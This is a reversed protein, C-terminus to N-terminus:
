KRKIIKIVDGDRMIFLSVIYSVCGVVCLIGMIMIEHFVSDNHLNDWIMNKLGEVVVYMVISSGFIKIISKMMNKDFTIYDKSKRYLIYANVFGSISTGFAIGLIGFNWILSMNLIINVCISIIAAFVPTKSDKQAFLGSAFIKSVVYSPLGLAFIQLIKSTMEVSSRSFKGHGYLFDVLIYSMTILCVVSPITLRIAFLFSRNQINIIEEKKGRSFSESIEPLLITALSIGFLALPLQIFRDAFYIYSISGTPLFSGFLTDMFVNIQSVGAGVIVPTLRRLFERTKNTLKIHSIHPIPLGLFKAYAFLFLFQFIGAILVGYSIRYGASWTDQGIFLSLILIINVFIPAFAFPFFYKHTILVGSYVTSLAVFSISPFTIRTFEVALRFREPDSVFGPAM